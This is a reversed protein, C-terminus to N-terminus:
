RLFLFFMGYKEHLKEVQNGWQGNKVIQYYFEYWVTASALKPGPFKAIPSFYVRYIVLLITYILFTILIGLVIDRAGLEQYKLNGFFGYIAELGHELAEMIITSFLSLKLLFLFYQITAPRLM